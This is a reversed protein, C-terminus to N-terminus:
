RARSPRRPCASGSRSTDRDTLNANEDSEVETKRVTDHITETRQDASKSVVLEETVRAQKGVVAEESTETMEVTREQFLANNDMNGETM